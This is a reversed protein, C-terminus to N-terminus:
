RVAVGGVFPNTRREEGITTPPGHGPYVTTEDPLTFLRTRISDVLVDMSGGWLDTRGVSGQFLVDGAIVFGNARDYFCVHGPSHGPTHFVEWIANGFRITQGDALTADPEPPRELPVGFM